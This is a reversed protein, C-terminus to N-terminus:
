FNLFVFLAPFSLPSHAPRYCRCLLNFACDLFSLTFPILKVCIFCPSDRFSAHVFYPACIKPSPSFRPAWAVAGLAFYRTFSFTSSPLTTFNRYSSHVYMVRFQGCIVAPCATRPPSVLTYLDVCVKVQSVRFFFSSL